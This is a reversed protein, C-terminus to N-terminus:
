RTGRLEPLGLAAALARAAVRAGGALMWLDRISQSTRVGERVIKWYSLRNDDSRCNAFDISISQAATDTIAKIASFPVGSEAAARGVGASEMDVAVAGWQGALARKEAAASIVEAASLLGGRRANRIPWAESTCAFREGTRQDLVQDAVVIDGPALSDALAGAFGITVLGGAGFREVLRRAARYANEAGMGAVILHAPMGGVLLSYVAGDKQVGNQRRLLPRVEWPVAAVLGISAKAKGAGDASRPPKM